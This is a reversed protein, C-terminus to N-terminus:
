KKFCVWEDFVPPIIRYKKNFQKKITIVWLFM